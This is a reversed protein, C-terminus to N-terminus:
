FGTTFGPLYPIKPSAMHHNTITPVTCAQRRDPPFYLQHSPRIASNYVHRCYLTGHLINQSKTPMHPVQTRNQLAIPTPASIKTASYALDVTNTHPYEKAKVIYLGRKNEAVKQLLDLLEFLRYPFLYAGKSTFVISRQDRVADSVSLLNYPMSSICLANVSITPSRSPNLALDCHQHATTTCKAIRAPFKTTLPLANEPM